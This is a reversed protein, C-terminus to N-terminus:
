LLQEVLCGSLRQLLFSVNSVIQPGVVGVKDVCQKGDRMLDLLLNILDEAKSILLM